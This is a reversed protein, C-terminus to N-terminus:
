FCEMSLIFISIRHRSGNESLTNKLWMWFLEVNKRSSCFIAVCIRLVRVVACSHIKARPRRWSWRCEQQAVAIAYFCRNECAKSIVSNLRMCSHSILSNCFVIKIYYKFGIKSLCWGNVRFLFDLVSFM